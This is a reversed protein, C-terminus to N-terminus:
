PLPKLTPFAQHQGTTLEGLPAQGKCPPGGPTATYYVGELIARITSTITAGIAPQPNGTCVYSGFVSLGSLLQAYGGPAMYPNGRNSNLRRQYSTVTEPNVPNSIRLYHLIKTQTINLGSAQTTATSNAFFAAIERRYTNIYNFIPIFNGLYPKLRTLWPVSVDLFKIFAPVGAKSADVLPGINVLLSKLEPALIVTQQLTPSLQRAAPRLENILPNAETAFRQIRDVTLRTAVTFSALAPIAAQLAQNRAATATFVANSNRILGQLQSPTQALAGFVQGTDRLLTTTAANDRNLVNLVANVNTAFPYFQAIASNFDQGRNTLAMGSQQLWTSFAKRTQADFTSLIQDLQVTPATQTQPITGGDALKPGNQSGPTLEIYTEGLLSKQRLIARTDAPRPAYQHDIQFVAKTLGTHRDLSVSVVKGISVGSIRVDSESALQVAQNFEAKLRYGEPAFPIAGGFSIWLFLLLGICSAAFAVMTLIRSTSPAQKNM